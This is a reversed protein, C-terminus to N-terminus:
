REHMDDKGPVVGGMPFGKDLMAVMRNWGAEREALTRRKRMYPILEAIPVGRREIVFHEGQEVEAIYSSFKQNAERLSLTRM